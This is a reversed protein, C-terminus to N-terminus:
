EYGSNVTLVISARGDQTLYRFRDQPCEFAFRCHHELATQQHHNV